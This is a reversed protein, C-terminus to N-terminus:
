CLKATIDNLQVLKCRIVELAIFDRFRISQEDEVSNMTYVHWRRVTNKTNCIRHTKDSVTVFKPGALRFRKPTTDGPDPEHLAIRM